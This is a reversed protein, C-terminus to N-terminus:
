IALNRSLEFLCHSFGLRLQVVVIGELQEHGDDETCLTSVFADILDCGAEELVIGTGFRHSLRTWFNDVVGDSADGVRVVLGLMQDFHSSHEPFLISAFHRLVQLLEDFQRAHASLGGIDHQTDHPALCPHRDVCVDEADAMAYTEHGIGARCREAYFLHQGFMERLLLNRIRMVPEDQVTAVGACGQTRLAVSAADRM